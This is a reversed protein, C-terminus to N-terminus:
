GRGNPPVNRSPDKHPGGFRQQPGLVSSLAAEADVPPKDRLSRVVSSVIAKISRRQNKLCIKRIAKRSTRKPEERIFDAASVGERHANEMLNEFAQADLPDSLRSLIDDDEPYTPDETSM